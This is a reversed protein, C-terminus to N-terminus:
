AQRTLPLHEVNENGIVLTQGAERMTRSRGAVVDGQAYRDAQSTLFGDANLRAKLDAVPLQRPTIGRLAAMAAATGVAQGSQYVSEQKRFTSNAIHDTSACRGAVLLGEVGRPLFCGYPVDCVGKIFELVYKSVDHADFNLRTTLVSDPFERNTRCDEETLCYDGEILRTERVGIQPPVDVICSDEFGPVHTKVCRWIAYAQKRTIIEARTLDAERTGDIEYLRTANVSLEGPRLCSSNFYTKEPLDPFADRYEDFILDLRSPLYFGRKERLAKRCDDFFAPNKQYHPYYRPNSAGWQFLRELDIHGIRFRLSVGQLRGNDGMAFRAGARAAVDGDGTTDVLAKAHFARRGSKSETIIGIVRDGEKIVDTVWNHLHLQVGAELLMNLAVIKVTEPEIHGKDRLPVPGQGFQEVRQAFETLLGTHNETLGHWCPMISYAAVGGVFGYREFLATRAGTRAAAIAAPIGATGGGCVIVDYTAAVPLHHAPEYHTRNNM